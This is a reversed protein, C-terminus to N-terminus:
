PITPVRGDLIAPHLYWQRDHVFVLGLAQYRLLYTDVWRPQIGVAQAIGVFDFHGAWHQRLGDLYIRQPVSLQKVTAVIEADDRRGLWDHLAAEREATLAEQRRLRQADIEARCQDCGCGPATGHQCSACRADHGDRAQRTKWEMVGGCYPM